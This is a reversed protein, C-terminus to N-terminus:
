VGRKRVFLHLYMSVRLISFFTGSLRKVVITMGWRPGDAVKRGLVGVLFVANTSLNSDWNLVIVVM